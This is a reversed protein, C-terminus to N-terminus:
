KAFWARAPPRFLLYLAYAQMATQLISVYAGVPSRHFTSWLIFPYVLLGVVFLVLYTIRAWNRGQGIKWIFGALVGFISGVFFVLVAVAAYRVRQHKWAVHTWAVCTRLLGILLSLWLLAVARSVELPKPKIQPASTTISM